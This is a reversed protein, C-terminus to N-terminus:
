VAKGALELSLTRLDGQDRSGCGRGYWSKWGPRRASPNSFDPCDRGNPGQGAVQGLGPDSQYDYALRPDHPIMMLESRSITVASLIIAPQSSLTPDVLIGCESVANPGNAEKAGDYWTVEYKTGDVTGSVNQRLPAHIVVQYPNIRDPGPVQRITYIVEKEGFEPLTTTETGMADTDRNPRLAPLTEDGKRFARAYLESSIPASQPIQYTIRVTTEAEDHGCHVLRAPPNEAAALNSAALLLVALGHALNEIVLGANRSPPRRPTHLSKM